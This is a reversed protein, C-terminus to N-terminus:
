FMRNLPNSQLLMSNSRMLSQNGSRLTIVFSQDVRDTPPYTKPDSISEVVTEFTSKASKASSFATDYREDELANQATNIERAAGLVNDMYELESEFQEAKDSYRSGIVPNLDSVTASFESQQSEAESIRDNNPRPYSDSDLRDQSESFIVSIQSQLISMDRAVGIESRLRQVRNRFSNNSDPVGDLAEFSLDEAETLLGRGENTYDVSITTDLITPEDVSSVAAFESLFQELNDKADTFAEQWDATITINSSSEESISEGTARVRISGNGLAARRSLSSSLTISQEGTQNIQTSNEAVSEGNRDIVEVILTIETDTTLTTTVEFNTGKEITESAEISTINVTATSEESDADSNTENSNSESQADTEDSGGNEVEEEPSSTDTCGTMSVAVGVTFLAKRRTVM